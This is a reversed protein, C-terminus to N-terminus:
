GELLTSSAVLLMIFTGVWVTFMVPNRFMIKPNLKIFSQKLAEKILGPQFLSINKTKSM